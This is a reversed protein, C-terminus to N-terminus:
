RFASVTLHLSSFLLCEIHHVCVILIYFFLDQKNTQEINTEYVGTIWISQGALSSNYPDLTQRTRILSPAPSERGESSVVFRPGNVVDLV